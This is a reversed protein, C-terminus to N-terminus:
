SIEALVGFLVKNHVRCGESVVSGNRYGARLKLDLDTVSYGKRNNAVVISFALSCLTTEEETNEMEVLSQLPGSTPSGVSTLNSSPAQLEYFPVVTLDVPITFPSSEWDPTIAMGPQLHPFQTSAATTDAGLASDILAESPQLESTNM